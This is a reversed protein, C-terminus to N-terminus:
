ANLFLKGLLPVKSWTKFAEKASAVCAEFEENTSQPTQAVLDQTVPNYINFVKDGKSAVFEGNYFNKYLRAFNYAYLQNLRLM